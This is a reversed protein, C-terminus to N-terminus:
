TFKIIIGFLWRTGMELFFFVLGGRNKEISKGFGLYSRSNNRMSTGNHCNCLGSGAEGSEGKNDRVLCIGWLISKFQQM